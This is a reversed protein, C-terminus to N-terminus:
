WSAWTVLFVRKGLYGSLRHKLGSLDPLVFEPAVLSRLRADREAAAAGFVWTKGAEDHLVPRGLHMWLSVLNVAGPRVWRSAQGPPVPVCIEGECLGEPKRTWGTTSALQSEEVWLADGDPQASVRRAERGDMLLTVM